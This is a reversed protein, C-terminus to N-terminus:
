ATPQGVGLRRPAGLTMFRTGSLGVATQLADIVGDAGGVVPALKVLHQIGAFSM